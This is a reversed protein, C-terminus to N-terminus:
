TCFLSLQGFLSINLITIRRCHDGAVEGEHAAHVPLQGQDLVAGPQIQGVGGPEGAEEEPLNNELVKPVQRRRRHNHVQSSHSPSLFSSALCPTSRKYPLFSISASEEGQVNFGSRQYHHSHLSHPGCSPASRPVIVVWINPDQEYLHRCLPSGRVM